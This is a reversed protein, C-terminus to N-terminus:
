IAIQSGVDPISALTNPLTEGGIKQLEVKSGAEASLLRQNVTLTYAYAHFAFSQKHGFASISIEM